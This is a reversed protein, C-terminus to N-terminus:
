REIELFTDEPYLSSPVYFKEKGTVKVPKQEIEGLQKLQMEGGKIEKSKRKVKGLTSGGWKYQLM